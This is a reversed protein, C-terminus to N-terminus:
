TTSFRKPWTMCCTNPLLIKVSRDKELSCIYFTASSHGHLLREYSDVIDLDRM